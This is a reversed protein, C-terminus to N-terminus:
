LDFCKKLLAFKQLNRKFIFFSIKMGRKRQIQPIAEYAAKYKVVEFQLTKGLKRYIITKSTCFFKRCGLSDIPLKRASYNIPAFEM